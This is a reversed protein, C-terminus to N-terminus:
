IELHRELGLEDEIDELASEIGQIRELLNGTGFEVFKKVCEKCYIDGNFEIANDPLREPDRGGFDIMKGCEVCEKEYVM